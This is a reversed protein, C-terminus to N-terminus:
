YAMILVVDIWENIIHLHGSENDAEIVFNDFFISVLETQADLKCPIYILLLRKTEKHM